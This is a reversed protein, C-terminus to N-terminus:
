KRFVVSYNRKPDVFSVTKKDEHCEISSQNYKWVSKVSSTNQATQNLHSIEIAENSITREAPALYKHFLEDQNNVVLEVTVKEEKENWVFFADKMFVQCPGNETEQISRVGKEFVYLMIADDFNHRLAIEAYKSPSVYAYKRDHVCIQEGFRDWRTVRPHISNPYYIQAEDQAKASSTKAQSSAGKNSSSSIKKSSAELSLTSFEKALTEVKNKTKNVNKKQPAAKKNNKQGKTPQPEKLLESLASSQEQHTRKAEKVIMDTQTSDSQNDNLPLTSLRKNFEIPKILHSKISAPAAKQLYEYADQYLKKQEENRVLKLNSHKISNMDLQRIYYDQFYDLDELLTKQREELTTEQLQVGKMLLPRRFMKTARYAAAYYGDIYNEPIEKLDTFQRLFFISQIAPEVSSSKFCLERILDALPSDLTKEQFAERKAITLATDIGSLPGHCAKIHSDVTEYLVAGIQFARHWSLFSAIHTQLLAIANPDINSESDLVFEILLPIITSIHEKTFVFDPTIKTNNGQRSSAKLLKNAINYFLDDLKQHLLILKKPFRNTEQILLRRYQGPHDEISRGKQIIGMSDRLLLAKKEQLSWEHFPKIVERSEILACQILLYRELTDIKNPFNNETHPTDLISFIKSSLKQFHSRMDIGHQMCLEEVKLKAKKLNSPLHAGIPREFLKISEILRIFKPLSQQIELESYGKIRDCVNRGIEDAKEWKISTECHQLNRKNDENIYSIEEPKFYKNELTRLQNPNSNIM